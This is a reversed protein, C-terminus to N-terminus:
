CVALFVQYTGFDSVLQYDFILTSLDLEYHLHVGAEGHASCSSEINSMGYLFSQRCLKMVLNDIVLNGFECSCTIKSIQTGADM